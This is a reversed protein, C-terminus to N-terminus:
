DLSLHMRYRWKHHPDAPINIQEQRPDSRRHAGDTSMWDQWPLITLMAPSVVHLDIIQKCTLPSPDVDDHAEMWWQRLGPMDHTSTTAVSLWSYHMPDALSVGYQKPMRQVELSLIQLQNLVQPVCAPIMGLDEACALMPTAQTIVPLRELAQRRWFDDHRHYFFDEYLADFARRQWQSLRSYATTKQGDIRPHWLTPDSHDAVFLVDDYLSLTAEDCGNEQALRQTAFPLASPAVTHEAANFTFGWRSLMEDPSLPMAPSFQGLLGHVASEPIQWIRFFGLVHDIRFADFYEAMKQLRRRWWAYGDRAMATWNYTPFGWNQGNVAFADPPAGAQCDLNYLRPNQWADVSNRDVGIAIDGKIAVGRSRGYACVESLQRHLHYQVYMVYHMEESATVLLYAPIGPRYTADDGWQQWAASGHRDRLVCFAAYPLLWEANEGVFDAFERSRLTKQGTRAFLQRTLEEKAHLAAAYDLETLRNLAARKAEYAKPIRGMTADIRLYIPHLAITSIASYPYSDDDTRTTTTDNVPLIQIMKMGRNAAWDIMLKLDVFEGVGFSEASRLSFVPIAVGTAKWLPLGRFHLEGRSDACFRRNEGEEWQVSGDEHIIAFKYETGESLTDDLTVTWLPLARRRMEAACQPQWSGLVSVSGVAVVRATAPLEPTIVRLQTM